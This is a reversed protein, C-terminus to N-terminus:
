PSFIIYDAAIRSLIRFNNIRTKKPPPHLNKWKKTSKFYLDIICIDIALFYFRWILFAFLLTFFYCYTPM